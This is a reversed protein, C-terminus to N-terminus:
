RSWLSEKGCDGDHNGAGSAGPDKTRLELHPGKDVAVVNLEQRAVDDDRMRESSPYIHVREGDFRM